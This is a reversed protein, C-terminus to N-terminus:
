HAEVMKSNRSTPGLLNWQEFVYYETEVRLVLEEDYKDMVSWIIAM